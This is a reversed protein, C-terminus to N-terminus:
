EMEGPSGDVATSARWNHPLNPDGKPNALVLSHGRGDALLSWAGDDDYTVSTLVQGDAGYLAITEGRDSLTGAFVGAVEATPYRERFEGFDSVLTFSAGAPLVTYQPFRFTVGELYANSLDVAVEGLNTLEIFEDREDELPHYMLETIRLLSQQDQRRFAAEALASWAEAASLGGTDGMKTRAKVVVATTLTLPAQYRQATAASAGTGAERPDSGDLTYYIDGTSANLSVQLQDIFVGGWQSLQPPDVPPYYGAQRTLDLLKESNGVMQQLVADRAKFWDAQTIPPEDRADGWRASEAIIAKELQNTITLWRAQAQATSLAGDNFLHKYLRDAFLLRFDPNEMLALLVLKVVNPFPRGEESDTGLNIAAGENWTDEGDWVWFLNRGAPYRVDAYWNNNPWDGNGAYWNLIVYDSFQVPDIFELITAYRAPDTLGGEQALQLLVNFRDAQGEIMGGHNVAFWEEKAGGLYASAFAHDPREVLNYLGWYLGNLYLHVFTGHVGVGSMALQSARLWEDRAYTAQRHDFQREPAPPHGAFSRDVGARLIVTDFETVPSDPFLQYHLKNAGYQEKFFLRFSHKPMFEYRGAGGQIRLGANSQFGPQVGDPYILEVSVPREAEPGRDRPNAYIDWNELATVLSLTPLARLSEDLLAGYHPDNVVTPDMEYDVLRPEGATYGGFSIDHRGLTTPFGPPQTPQRRVAETFLYTQTTVPAPRADAWFAGARVITTTAISIPDTYPLGNSLTPESGDLTYRITANPTATELSVAFPADYFGHPRSFTVPDVAGRWLMTTNNAAGPTPQGLFGYEAQTAGTAAPLRGYSVNTLQPPYTVASGDLHRRTTPSYLALFGGAASLRFNTHLHQVEGDAEQTKIRRRDKDSAFIVLYQGRELQVAPVIWKSPQAPDDTLSWNTLDVATATPNYLEIWDVFDDDEDALGSDTSTMIENIVVSSAGGGGPKTPDILLQPLNFLLYLLLFGLFLYAVWTKRIAM